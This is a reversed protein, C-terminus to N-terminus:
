AFVNTCQMQLARGTGERNVDGRIAGRFQEFDTTFSKAKELDTWPKYSQGYISAMAGTYVAEDWLMFYAPSVGSPDNVIPKLVIRASLAATKTETSPFCFNLTASPYDYTYLSVPIQMLSDPFRVRDIRRIITGAYPPTLPYASQQDVTNILLEEKWAETFTCINAWVAYVREAAGGVDLGRHAEMLRRAMLTILTAATPTAM